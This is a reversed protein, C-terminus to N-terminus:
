AINCIFSKACIGANKVQQHYHQVKKEIVQQHMFARKRGFVDQVGTSDNAAYVQEDYKM